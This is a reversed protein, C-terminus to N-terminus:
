PLVRLLLLSLCLYPSLSLSLFFLSLPSLTHTYFNQEVKYVSVTTLRPRWTLEKNPKQQSDTQFSGWQVCLLTEVYEEYM